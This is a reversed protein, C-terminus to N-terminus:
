DDGYHFAAFGHYDGISFPHSGCRRDDAEAFFAFLENPL